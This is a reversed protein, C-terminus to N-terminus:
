SIGATTMEGTQWSRIVLRISTSTSTTGGDADHAGQWSERAAERVESTNLPAQLSMAQIVRYADAYNRINTPIFM